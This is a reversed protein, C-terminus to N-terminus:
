TKYGIEGKKLSSSVARGVVTAKQRGEIKFQEAKERAKRERLLARQRESENEAKAAEKKANEAQQRHVEATTDRRRKATRTQEIVARANSQNLGEFDSEKLLGDEILELNLCRTRSRRNRNAM